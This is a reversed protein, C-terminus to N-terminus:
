ILPVEASVTVESTNTGLVLQTDIQKNDSTQLVIGKHEVPRFGAASVTFTYPAPVLFQVLWNGQDNTKTVQRVGTDESIVTVEAAPVAAGQPDTVRGGLTARSSQGWTVASLAMGLALVCKVRLVKPM